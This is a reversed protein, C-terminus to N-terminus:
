DEKWLGIRYVSIWNGAIVYGIHRTGGDKLDVYMKNAHKRGLQELLEKRPYKDIRYHQGYQDFGIYGLTEMEKM